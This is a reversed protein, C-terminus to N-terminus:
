RCTSKSPQVRVRSVKCTSPGGHSKVIGYVAALGLGRGPHRLSFFPEFVQGRTEEDMGVGDDEVVLLIYSGPSLWAPSSGGDAAIEVTSTKVTLCGSEGISELANNLLNHIVQEVQSRDAHVPGSAPELESRILVDSPITRQRDRLIKELVTDLNFVESDNKGERAYALMQAAIEDARVAAEEITRLRASVSHDEPTELQVLSANGLVIAMLNNFEHAIGGALTATAEMRAAVRVAKETRRRETIDRTVGVMSYGRGGDGSILSIRNEGTVVQGDKRVDDNILLKSLTKGNFVSASDEAAESIIHGFAAGIHSENPSREWQALVEEATYGLYDFVSPSVFRLRM